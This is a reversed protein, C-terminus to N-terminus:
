VFHVKKLDDAYRHIGEEVRKLIGPSASRIGSVYQRMQSENIGSIRALSSQNITDGYGSVLSPIDCFVFEFDYDGDMWPTREEPYLGEIHFQVSERLEKKLAAVSSSAIVFGNLAPINASVGNGAKNIEVKLVEMTKNQHGKKSQISEEHITQKGSQLLLM